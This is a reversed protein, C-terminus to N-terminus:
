SVTKKKKKIILVGRPCKRWAEFIGQSAPLVRCLSVNDSGLNILGPPSNNRNAIFILVFGVVGVVISGTMLFRHIQFWEGNPLAPRMWAAFFIALVAMLPWAILMLIGHARVLRQRTVDGAVAGGDVAPNVRQGSLVPNGGVGLVHPM